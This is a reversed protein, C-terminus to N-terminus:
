TYALIVGSPFARSTSHKYFCFISSFLINTPIHPSPAFSQL